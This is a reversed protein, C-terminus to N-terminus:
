IAKFVIYFLTIKPFYYSFLSIILAISTIFFIYICNTIFYNHHQLNNNRRRLFSYIFTFFILSSFVIKIVNSIYLIYSVKNKFYVHTYIEIDTDTFNISNTNIILDNM